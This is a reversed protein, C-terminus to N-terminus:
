TSDVDRAANIWLSVTQDDTTLRAKIANFVKELTATDRPEFLHSELFECYMESEEFGWKDSSTLGLEAINYYNEDILVWNTCVSDIEFSLLQLFEFSAM